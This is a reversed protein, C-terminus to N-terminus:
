DAESGKFVDPFSLPISVKHVQLDVDGFDWSGSQSGHVNSNSGGSLPLDDM